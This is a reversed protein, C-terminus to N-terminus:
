KDSHSIVIWTELTLDGPSSFPNLKKALDSLPSPEFQPSNAFNFLEGHRQHSSFDTAQHSGFRWCGVLNPENGIARVFQYSKIAEPTRATKWIRVEDLCGDTYEDGQNNLAGIFVTTNIKPLSSDNSKRAEVVQGDLYSVFGNATNRKWTMAIHHWKGDIAGSGVSIGTTGGDNSLIHKNDWGAVIFGSNDQQRVASQLSTGKFWYEITIEDGSLDTLNSIKVCNKKAKEFKLADKPLSIEVYQTKGDLQLANGPSEATWQCNTTETATFTGNTLTTSDGTAVAIVLLSGQSLSSPKTVTTNADYDYRLYSVPTNAPIPQELHIASIAVKGNTEVPKLVESVKVRQSGMLLVGHPTLEYNPAAQLTLTTVDGVLDAALTGMPVPESWAGSLVAAIEQTNRPLAEWTETIHSAASAITMRCRGKGASGNSVAITLDDLGPEASRALCTLSNTLQLQARQTQTDYYASFFEDQNGRFYLAIKGTASDFLQPTDQTWAFDLIGGSTTLGNVDVACLPMFVQADGTSRLKALEQVLNNLEQTKQKLEDEKKAILQNQQDLLSKQKNLESSVSEKRRSYEESFSFSIIGGLMSGPFYFIEFRGKLYDNKLYMQDTSSYSSFSYLRGGQRVIFDKNSYQSNGSPIYAQNSQLYGQVVFYISGGPKNSSIPLIVTDVGLRPVPFSQGIVDSLNKSTAEERNRFVVVGSNMDNIKENNIDISKQTEDRSKKLSELETNLAPIAVQTLSVITKQKLTIQDLQANRSGGADSSTALKKLDMVDPIQALKGDKSVGFDLTTVEKKGSGADTAVALMVRTNQKVPKSENDYGTAKNEQQCYMLASLGSAVKRGSFGFSNRSIGAGEGIPAESKVWTPNGELKGHNANDTQDYVTTGTGEDFCWYGVLGPENGVLRCNMDRLIEEGDRARDWIRVEDIKGSFELGLCVNNDYYSIPVPKGCDYSNVLQGNIYQKLVGDGGYVGAVHVWQNLPIKTTNESGIDAGM